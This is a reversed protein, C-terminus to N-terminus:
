SATGTAARRRSRRDVLVTIAVIGLWFLPNGLVRIVADTAGRLAPVSRGLWALSGVMAALVGVMSAVVLASELVSRLHRRVGVVGSTTIEILAVATAGLTFAVAFRAIFSTDRWGRLQKTGDASLQRWAADATREFMSFGLLATLGSLVQQVLTFVFGVVVAAVIASSGDNSRDLVMLVLWPTVTENGPGWEYVIWAVVGVLALRGAWSASRLDAGVSSRLAPRMGAVGAVQTPAASVEGNAPPPVFPHDIPPM